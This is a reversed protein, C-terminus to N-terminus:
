RGEGLMDVGDKKVKLKPPEEKKPKKHKFVKAPKGKEGEKADGDANAGESEGDGAAEADDKKGGAGEAGAEAADGKKKKKKMEVSGGNEKNKWWEAEATALKPKRNDVLKIKTGPQVFDLDELKGRNLRQTLALNEETYEGTYECVLEGITQGSQLTVEVTKKPLSISPMSLKV